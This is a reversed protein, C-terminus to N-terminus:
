YMIRLGAVGRFTEQSIADGSFGGLAYHHDTVNRLDLFLDMCESHRYLAYLNMEWPDRIQEALEGAIVNKPTSRFVFSPTLFLKSTAQWTVGLRGNHRSIGPLVTIVGANREEFDLYSYSFWSSIRGHNFKGYFDMGMRDSSGGNATQVLTRPENADGNLYVPDALINQPAARDAVTIVNSETGQYLAFGLQLDDETYSLSIEHMEAEEPVVNSNTTALLNGNDFTSFSFYPAPQVFGRNYIYKATWRDTLDVIASARPSFPEQEFHQDWTVRAGGVLRLWDSAQWEAETFAAYTWYNVQNAQAIETLSGGVTNSYFFSGSQAIPDQSSDFGGTYTAKPIIDSYQALGGVLVHFSETLQWRFVEELQLNWGRGYKFDDLYWETASAPFVFRSSPDIEYHSYQLTSELTVRDHVQSVNKGEIVFSADSWRAQPLFGLGPNFGEASSRESERYWLQVSNNRWELRQYVNLGFDRRSPTVGAGGANTMNSAIDRYDQWYAPYETDIPTLDSDRYQVFGSLQVDKFLALEGAYWGWVEREANIGFESGVQFRDTRCGPRQMVVNVTASVADQGYLTSNSGYVVEIREAHRVSFDNRLPHYEGGPPNVRMGNVLLLIKNNASIGRVSVQTGIESFTNEVTEMGPLDRLVDALQSYGRLLIEDRTIVIVTKPAETTRELHRSASYVFSPLDNCCADCCSDFCSPFPDLADFGFGTASSFESAAMSDCYTEFPDGGHADWSIFALSIPCVSLLVRILSQLPLGSSSM